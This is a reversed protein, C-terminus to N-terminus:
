QWVPAAPLVCAQIRGQANSKRWTVGRAQQTIDSLPPTVSDGTAKFTSSVSSLQCSALFSGCPAAGSRDPSACKMMPLFQLDNSGFIATHHLIGENDQVACPRQFFSPQWHARWNMHGATRQFSQQSSRAPSGDSHRGPLVGSFCCRFNSWLSGSASVGGFVPSMTLMAEQVTHRLFDGGTEWKM